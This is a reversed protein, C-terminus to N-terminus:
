APTEADTALVSKLASIAVELMGEDPKRTTMRQLALGPLMAIRVLRNTVHDATLRIIEYSVAGILPLIALRELFRLWMAPRGLFAHAIIAIVLVMLLFSTGCRTHATGYKRVEDVDLDVGAEYANITTHEAGHYAFVRRINPILAVANLYLLFVILRIVGDTVNSVTASIYPDVIRVILLPLAVFLGIALVFGVAASGWLYAPNVKQEEEEELAVSASYSLSRIGLALTELLVIPGRVFPIRVLRGTSWKGLPQNRVAIDGDPRRVAVAACTRGRMMVGELVAQGGYHFKKAL